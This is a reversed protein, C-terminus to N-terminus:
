VLADPTFEWTAYIDSYADNVKGAAVIKPLYVVQIKAASALDPITVTLTPEVTTKADYDTLSDPDLALSTYNTSNYYTVNGADDVVQIQFHQKSVQLSVKTYIKFKCTLVNNVYTPKDDGGKLTADCIGKGPALTEGIKGTPRNPNSGCGTFMGAGAVAVATLASYKMFDRRSFTYSM